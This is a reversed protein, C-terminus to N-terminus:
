LRTVENPPAAQERAEARKFGAVEWNPCGDSRSTGGVKRLRGQASGHDM